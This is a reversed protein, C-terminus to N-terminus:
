YVYNPTLPELNDIDDSVSTLPRSNVISEIELLLTHLTNEHLLRGKDVTKLCRKAIKLSAEMAEGMWPCEPPNFMWQM